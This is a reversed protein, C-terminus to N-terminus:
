SILKKSIEIRSKLYEYYETGEAKETTYRALVTQRAQEGMKRRQEPSEILGILKDKWEDATTAVYGDVGDTIAGRFTGTASAVTPVGVGGAELWKLESKAECFPNGIELPALNIDIGALTAFYEERSLFPLREIQSVVTDLVSGTELPGVLVLRLAPYKGLLELLVPVITAFDKNHSMTGSLYGLRIHPSAGAGPLTEVLCVDAQSLKNRVVFVSKGKAQLRDALYQTTTTAHTVYPNAVLEGGLGHEYLKRELTNMSQYGDMFPLFQPDYLLDDAEFLIEKKQATIRAIMEAIKPTVLVRHFVFVSFTDVYSALFPNDQVTVSALFGHLNLEEAVHTTRYRASDGVGGSIFLIDGPEVQRFLKGFAQLIRKGGRVVGERRLANWAKGIKILILNM